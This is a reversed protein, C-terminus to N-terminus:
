CTKWNKLRNQTRPFSHCTIRASPRSSGVVLTEIQPALIAAKKAKFYFHKDFGGHLRKRIRRSPVFCCLLKLLKKHLKYNM